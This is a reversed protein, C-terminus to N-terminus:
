FFRKIICGNGMSLEVGKEEKQVTERLNYISIDVGLHLSGTIRLYKKEVQGVDYSNYIGDQLRQNLVTIKEMIDSGNDADAYYQKNLEELCYKSYPLVGISLALPLQVNNGVNACILSEGLEVEGSKIVSFSSDSVVSKECILKCATIGTNFFINGGCIITSNTAAAMSADKLVEVRSYEMVNKHVVLIDHVKVQSASISGHVVLRGIVEIKTNLINGFVELDGYFPEEVEQQLDDNITFKDRVNLRHKEDQYPSGDKDSYICGNQFYTNDGLFNENVYKEVYYEQDGFCNLKHKDAVVSALLADKKIYDGSKEMQYNVAQEPVIPKKALQFEREFDTVKCRLLDESRINAKQLLECLEGEDKFDERNNIKLFAERCSENVKLLFNKSEFIQEM